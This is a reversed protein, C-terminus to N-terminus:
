HTLNYLVISFAVAVNLSEIDNQLPIIISEDSFSKSIDSIGRAENGLVVAFREEKELDKLEKKTELSTTIIKIKQEKLFEFAEKLDMRVINAKFIAGQTGRLTKENYEDVTNSSVIIDKVGLALSTRIITGFNGPDNIDDLVIYKNTKSLKTQRMKVVGIINQPTSTTSLKNIIPDTVLIQKTNEFKNLLDASTSLVTELLGNKHAEETLHLGEVLFLKKNYRESRKRLNLLSKIKENSLSSIHEM